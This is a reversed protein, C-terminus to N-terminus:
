SHSEVALIKDNLKTLVTNPGIEKWTVDPSQQQWAQVMQTWRVPKVLQFSLEELLHTSSLLEGNTSSIVPLHMAQFRQQSLTHFFAQRAPEMYRSHFAGSVALSVCQFDKAALSAQASNISAQPGSLVLQTPSNFNAIDIDFFEEAMLTDQVEDINPGIVALMAGGQMAQMLEGRKAVLRLGTLFDFAGAAYLAPYLGLSHGTVADIRLSSDECIADYLWCCVAYLAPQTYATQNLQQQPDSLCLTRLCYGLVDSAQEVQSDYREFLEAAMGVRQAGQGPFMVIQRLVESM